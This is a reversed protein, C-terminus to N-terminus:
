FCPLSLYLIRFISNSLPHMRRQHPQLYNGIKLGLIGFRIFLEWKNLIGIVAALQLGYKNARDEWPHFFLRQNFISFHDTSTKDDTSFLIRQITEIRQCFAIWLPIESRSM